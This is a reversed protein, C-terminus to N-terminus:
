DEEDMIDMVDSTDVTEVTEVTDDVGVDVWSSARAIEKRARHIAEEEAKRMTGSVKVVRFVCPRTLPSRKGPGSGSGPAAFEPVHTIYSLAM